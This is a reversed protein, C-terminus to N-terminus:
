DGGKLASLDPEEVTKGLEWEYYDLGHGKLKDAAIHGAQANNILRYASNRADLIAEIQDEYPKAVACITAWKEGPIDSLVQCRGNLRCM